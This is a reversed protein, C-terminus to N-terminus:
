PAGEQLERQRARYRRVKHLNGCTTDCWRRSRNKSEDYFVWRCDDNSCIKIRELEADSLFSAASRAVAALVAGQGPAVPEPRLEWHDGDRALTHAVPGAGIVKNLRAVDGPDPAGTSGVKEVISRLLGRLRRLDEVPVDRGGLFRDLGWEALFSRLWEPRDLRDDLEGLRSRHESNILDIFPAQM